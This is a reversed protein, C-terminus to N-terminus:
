KKGEVNKIAYISATSTAQRLSFVNGDVDNAFTMWFEGLILPESLFKVGVDKMRVYEAQIDEVEISFSYGLDTPSNIQTIDPTEIPNVYQMLELMKSGRDMRFWAAKFEFDDMDVIDDFKRSNEYGYQGMRYPPIDLVKQYFAVLNELDPSILAVQTMWMPNKELWLSDVGDRKFASRDLQELEIMNGEDDYVYAYTVGYGGLDVPQDGRTLLDAGSNLFKDYGSNWSPSQYCTHTMGPGQPPMKTLEASAQNSFQTLELLM